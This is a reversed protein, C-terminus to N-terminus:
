RLFNCYLMIQCIKSFNGFGFESKTDGIRRFWDQKGNRSLSRCATRLFSTGRQVSSPVSGFCVRMDYMLGSSILVTVSRKKTEAM